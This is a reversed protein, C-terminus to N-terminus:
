LQKSYAILQDNDDYTSRCGVYGNIESYMRRALIDPAGFHRILRMQDNEVYPYQEVPLFRSERNIGPRDRQYSALIILSKCIVVTRFAILRIMWPNPNTAHTVNRFCIYRHTYPFLECGPCTHLQTAM